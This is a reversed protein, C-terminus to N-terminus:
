NSNTNSIIPETSPAIDNTSDNNWANSIPSANLGNQDNLPATLPNSSQKSNNDSTQIKQQILIGMFIAFVLIAGIIVVITVNFLFRDQPPLSSFKRKKM